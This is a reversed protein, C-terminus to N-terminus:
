RSEILFQAQKYADFRNASLIKKNPSSSDDYEYITRFFGDILLPTSCLNFVYRAGNLNKKVKTIAIWEKTESEVISHPLFIEPPHTWLLEDVYNLSRDDEAIILFHEKQSFHATATEILRDVKSAANNVQFFIVRTSDIAPM